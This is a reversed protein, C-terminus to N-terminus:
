ASATSLKAPKGAWLKKLLLFLTALGGVFLVLFLGIVSWQSKVPLASLQVYPAVYASRVIQRVAVMVVLTLLTTIVALRAHLLTKDTKTALIVHAVAALPLLMGLGLLSAGLPSGAFLDLLVPRPLAMLFWMGVMYNIVTPVVFWKSGHQMM